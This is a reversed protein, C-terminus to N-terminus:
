SSQGLDRGVDRGLDRGVDRGVDRGAITSGSIVAGNGIVVSSEVTPRAATSDVGVHAAVPPPPAAATPVGLGSFGGSGGSGPQALRAQVQGLVYGLANDAFWNIAHLSRFGLPLETEPTLLISLLKNSRRAVDAEDLVWDSHPGDGWCVIVLAAAELRQQIETGFRDGGILAQDWWVQHGAAQLLEVLVRVRSRTPTHYSVFIVPSELMTSVGPVVTTIPGRRCSPGASALM